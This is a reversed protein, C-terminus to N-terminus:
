EFLGEKNLKFAVFADMLAAVNDIKDQHRRKWLKRNGNTDELVISNGMSYNMLSQDFLLLRSEAMKKIEGLPVSETKVGQIVKEIGVEGNERAWREIFERANYPDYGVTLVTYEHETIYKDVDDYVEMMDLVTGNKVILSGEQIFESYKLRTAIHLKEYTLETIFSLVKVGFEGTPLPFLFTFACFDDGQSLDIGLSCIMRWYERLPHLQIEETTFFYSHGEMPINFRKAIIDNKASPVKQAKEVDQRYAEESTTIGINPNAKKWLRPDGVEELSDLKYYWISVHPNVYEGRLIDELEIKISDGVGNRITGESSTIVIIYDDVKSAGQEIAGIPDERIDCSLLEDITAVKCRLGQLKAISMPRIQIISGNLHNVIGIKTSELKIRKVKRNAKELTLPQTLFKMYPGRARLIATNIPMMVEEAQKMTPATTIQQTTSPDVNQFYSQIYSAYLTKAAGRGVLVFQKNTLRRKVVRRQYRGPGGDRGKVRVSRTEFYYWGFIQEAWLKFADTLVVDDGDTLTMENECYAIFGEVPAPDYWINPNRILQDIRGMELSIEKCIPIAGAMVLNRFNGYYKPIATNSMM